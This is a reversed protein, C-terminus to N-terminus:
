MGGGTGPGQGGGYRRDMRQQQRFEQRERQHAQIENRNLRGDSDADISSFDPPQNMYRRPRQQAARNQFRQEHARNFEDQSVYGNDDGDFAEFPIPGRDPIDTGASGTSVVAMALVGAAIKRISNM